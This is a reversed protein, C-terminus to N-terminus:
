FQAQVPTFRERKLFGWTGIEYSLKEFAVALNLVLDLPISNFAYLEFLKKIKQRVHQFCNSKIVKSITVLSRNTSIFNIAKFRQSICEQIAVYNIKELIHSLDYLVCKSWIQQIGYKPTWEKQHQQIQFFQTIFYTSGWKELNLTKCWNLKMEFIPFQLGAPWEHAIAQECAAIQKEPRTEKGLPEDKM